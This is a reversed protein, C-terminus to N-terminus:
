SSMTYENPNTAPLYEDVRHVLVILSSTASLKQEKYYRIM